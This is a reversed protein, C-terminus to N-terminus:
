EIVQKVRFYTGESAPANALADDHDLTAQPEDSRLVDLLGTVQATPEVNSTDIEGLLDVYSLVGSLQEQFFPIDEEAIDLRALLAIKKIEDSSLRQAM